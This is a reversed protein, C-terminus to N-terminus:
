ELRSIAKKIKNMLECEVSNLIQTVFFFRVRYVSVKRAHTRIIRRTSKHAVADRGLPQNNWRITNKDHKPALKRSFSENDGFVTYSRHVRM